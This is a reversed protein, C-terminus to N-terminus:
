KRAATKEIEKLIEASKKKIDNLKQKLLRKKVPSIYDIFLKGNLHDFEHQFVRAEYGELERTYEKGFNDYYKVRIKLSRPVEEFIDPISLCGEEGEEKEPSMELIQPNIILHLKEGVDYLFFRESIGIQPAALGVGDEVYMTNAMEKIFEDKLSTPDIEKAVKRLVPDGYLRILM